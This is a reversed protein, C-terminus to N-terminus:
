SSFKLLHGKAHSAPSELHVASGQLDSGDGDDEWKGGSKSRLVAVM